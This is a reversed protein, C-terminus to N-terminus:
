TPVEEHHETPGALGCRELVADGALARLVREELEETSRRVGDAGGFGEIDLVHVFVRGTRRSTEVALTGPVLTALVSTLTLFVDDPNRLQVRVIAGQPPPGPRLATWAVQLSAVVLDAVFRWALRCFPLFRFAADAKIPPLPFAVVVVVALLAGAIVNAWSLDGWLLVWVAALLVVAPWQAVPRGVVRRLAGARRRPQETM